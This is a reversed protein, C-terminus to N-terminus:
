RSGVVASFRTFVATRKGKKALFGASTYKTLPAYCEFFGHTGSGRAHIVREPIREHDFRMIKEPLHHDDMVTPVRVGAKL